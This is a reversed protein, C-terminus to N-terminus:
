GGKELYQKKIIEVIENIDQFDRGPNYVLGNGDNDTQIFVTPLVDCGTQSIVNEWLNRNKTIEIDHFIINLEDLKEKLENCHVCGNLTFIM